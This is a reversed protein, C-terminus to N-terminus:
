PLPPIHHHYATCSMGPLFTPTEGASRPDPNALEPVDGACVRMIVHFRVVSCQLNYRNPPPDYAAPKTM